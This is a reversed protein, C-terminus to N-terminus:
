WELTKTFGGNYLSLYTTALLLGLVLYMIFYFITSTRYYLTVKNNVEELSPLKSGIITFFM